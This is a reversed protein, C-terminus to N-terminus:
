VDCLRSYAARRNTEYPAIIPNENSGKNMKYGGLKIESKHSAGVQSTDM